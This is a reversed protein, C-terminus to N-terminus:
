RPLCAFVQADRAATSERVAAASCSSPVGTIVRRRIRPAIASVEIAVAPRPWAFYGSRGILIMTGYGAPAVASMMIRVIESGSPASSPWAM